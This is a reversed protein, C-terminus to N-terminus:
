PFSWGLQRFCDVLGVIRVPSHGETCAKIMQGDRTVLPLGVAEASALVLQDVTSLKRLPGPPTALPALRAFVAQVDPRAENIAHPKCNTSVHTRWHDPNPMATLEVLVRKGTIISGDSLAKSIEIWLSGFVDDPYMREGLDIFANTDFFFSPM